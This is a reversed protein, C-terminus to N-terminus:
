LTLLSYLDSNTNPIKRLFRNFVVQLIYCFISFIFKQAMLSLVMDVDFQGGKIMSFVYHKCSPRCHFCPFQDSFPVIIPVYHFFLLKETFSFDKPFRSETKWLNQAEDELQVIVKFLWSFCGEPIFLAITWNFNWSLIKFSSKWTYKHM